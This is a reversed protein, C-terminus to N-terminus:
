LKTLKRKEANKAVCCSSQQGRREKETGEREEGVM